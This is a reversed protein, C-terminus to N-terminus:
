IPLDKLSDNKTLLLVGFFLPVLSLIQVLTPSQRLIFFAFVLTIAPAASELAVAKTVSIRYIGELWLIKCLGFLFVGNVALLLIARLGLMGPLIERFVLAALFIIPLSFLSRWFMVGESSLGRRAKQQYYNGFPALITAAVVLWVGLNASGAGPLLALVAGFVMFIAGLIHAPSFVEKKWVNFLLYNFFNEMLAVISVVGPSVFKLSWFMFIYYGAGIFLATLFLEKWVKHSFAVRWQKKVTLLVAFFAIGFSVSLFLSFMPPLSVFSLATVVPFLGWLFASALIASEGKRTESIM